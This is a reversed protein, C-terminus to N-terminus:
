LRPQPLIRLPAADLYRNLGRVECIRSKFWMDPSVEPGCRYWAFDETNPIDKILIRSYIDSGMGDTAQGCWIEM